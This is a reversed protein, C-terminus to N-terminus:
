TREERIMRRRCLDLGMERGGRIDRVVLGKEKKLIEGMMTFWTRRKWVYVRPGSIRRRPRCVQPVGSPGVTGLFFTTRVLLTLQLSTWYISPVHFALLRRTILRRQAGIPSNPGLMAWDSTRVFTYTPERQMAVRVFWTSDCLSLQPALLSYPEIYPPRRKRNRRRPLIKPTTMRGDQCCADKMYIDIDLTPKQEQSFVM